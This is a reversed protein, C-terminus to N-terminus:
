AARGANEALTRQVRARVLVPYRATFIVALALAALGVGIDLSLPFKKNFTATADAATTVLFALTWVATIIYNTRIFVPTNWFEQPTQERAYQLTFPNRITM